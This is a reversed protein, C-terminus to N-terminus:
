DVSSEEQETQGSREAELAPDFGLRSQATPDSVWNRDRATTLLDLLEGIEEANVSPFYIDPELFDATIREEEYVVRGAELRRTRVRYEQEPGYRRKLELRYVTNVWARPFAQKRVLSRRTVENMKDATALSTEGGQSLYHLPLNFMVAFFTQLLHADREADAAKIDWVLPELTEAEGTEPNKALTLVNGSPPIKGFAKAKAKQEAMAEQPTRANILTTYVANLRSANRNIRVRDDLFGAYKAAVDLAQAFPPQSRPNNWMPKYSQWAFQGRKWVNREMEVSDIDMPLGPVSNLQISKNVDWFGIRAPQDARRRLQRSDNPFVTLNEGDIFFETFYRELMTDLANAHWFEELAVQAREDHMEGYTVGEGLCFSALVEIAGAYLPNSLYLSRSLQRKSEAGLSVPLGNAGTEIWGSHNPHAVPQGRSDLIM